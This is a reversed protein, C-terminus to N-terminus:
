FECLDKDITIRDELYYKPGCIRDMLLVNYGHDSVTKLFREIHDDEFFSRMNVFVFLKDRDFERILEMYDIVRELPDDYEDSLCLGVGKLLGGVTCHDCAIDCDFSFALREVYQEVQQLLESTELFYSENMSVRELSAIIKNLLPRTNIDFNICNDIVEVHAGMSLEKEGDSLIFRGNEGNKQAYLDTLLSRFFTPNEIVLSHIGSSSFDMVSEIEPYCLIM